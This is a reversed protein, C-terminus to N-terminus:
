LTSFLESLLEVIPPWLMEIKLFKKNLIIIHSFSYQQSVMHSRRLVKVFSFSMKIIFFIYIFFDMLSSLHSWCMDTNDDLSFFVRDHPLWFTLCKSECTYFSLSLFLYLFYSSFLKTFSNSTSCSKWQIEIFSLLANLTAHSKIM